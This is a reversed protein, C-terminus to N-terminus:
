FRRRLRVFVNAPQKAESVSKAVYLGVPDFEIGLGVDTRFTGVSPIGDREYQLTGQRDGVLWGRGADAFLVWVGDAHWGLTLGGDDDDGFLNANFRLDGRYEVQALAMRECLAVVGLAARTADTTCQNVDADGFTRRFDFGALTGPGGVSFRRQLPLPDGDLWGGLVVRVNLQADPAIRNYRRLDVFGRGYEVRGALRPPAGPLPDVLVPSAVHGTGREYDAVIYWGSWPDDTDNRTDIRLTANAVHFRGDDIRPNARWSQQNRFLTFPDRLRRTAQREDSLSFTLDVDEGAVLALYGSGGHRNFYDRFDRHLFFSGLGVETDTLQWNEIGDVVDFLRGGVALGPRGGVRVEARLNHGLNDSDWRFNDATRFIGFADLTLRGWAVEERITPGLYIPLGEVRNYTRASAFRLNNWNRSGRGRRLRLWRRDANGPGREAVIRDAEERYHLVQRYVRIEGGVYARERGELVGGVILLDGNIRATSTLVVDANVAVVRGTITGAITLPGNLVAVDGQVEREAAIELRGNARLTGPANVLEVVERAVERPLQSEDLADAASDAAAASDQAVTTDRVQAGLPAPALLWPLIIVAAVATLRVPTGHPCGLAAPRAPPSLPM